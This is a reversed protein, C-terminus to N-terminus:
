SIREGSEVHFLHTEGMRPAVHIQEGIAPGRRGEFRVVVPKDRLADDGPLTGYVFCDSGLEEVLTVTVTM